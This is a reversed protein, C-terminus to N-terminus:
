MEKSRAGNTNEIAPETHASAPRSPPSGQAAEHENHRNVMQATERQQEGAEQGTPARSSTAAMQGGPAAPVGFSDERGAHGGEEPAPPTSAPTTEDSSSKKGSTVGESTSKGRTKASKAREADATRAAQRLALAKRELLAQSGEVQQESFTPKETAHELYQLVSETFEAEAENLGKIVSRPDNLYALKTWYTNVMAIVWATRAGLKSMSVTPKSIFFTVFSVASLGGFVVVPVVDAQQFLGIYLAAAFGGVGVLFTALLMGVYITFTVTLRKQSREATRGAQELLKLSVATSTQNARWEPSASPLIIHTTKSSLRAQGTLRSAGWLRGSANKIFEVRGPRLRFALSQNSGNVDLNFTGDERLSVERWSGDAGRLEVRAPRFHLETADPGVFVRNPEEAWYPRKTSVVRLSILKSRFVAL